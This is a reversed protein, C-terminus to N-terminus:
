PKLRDPPTKTDSLAKMGAEQLAKQYDAEKTRWVGTAVLAGVLIFLSLRVLSFEKPEFFINQIAHAIGMVIVGSSVSSEIVYRAQGRARIKEWGELSHEDGYPFLQPM